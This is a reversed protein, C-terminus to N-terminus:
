ASLGSDSPVNQIQANVFMYNHDSTQTDRVDDAKKEGVKIVNYFLFTDLGVFMQKRNERGKMKLSM